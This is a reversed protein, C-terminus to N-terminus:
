APQPSIVLAPNHPGLRSGSVERFHKPAFSLAAYVAMEIFGQRPATEADAPTPEELSSLTQVRKLPTTMKPSKLMLM